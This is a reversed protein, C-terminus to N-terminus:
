RCGASTPSPRSAAQPLPGDRRRRRDDGRGHQRRHGPRRGRGAPPRRRAGHRLRGGQHAPPVAGVRHHQHARRRQRVPQGRRRRVARPGVPAAGAPRGGAPAPRGRHLGRAIRPSTSPPPAAAGASSTSWGPRPSSASSGPWRRPPRTTSASPTPCAPTRTRRCSATPSARVARRRLAAPREAGLACNLGVALPRAHRVSYWFAETVQGSLTRGSADTITGSIMVPWRRDHEEFLTELAYIAAKANLTDFITEVLLVDAGGDVLGPGARPLGRGARRLHRQPRRPRQRRALHIGHPEDARAHGAGLAAPRAHARDDRRVRGPGAVGRRPEDRLRPGADRLRGALHAARQLHQDRAPRRRGRPVHPPGRPHARAPHALAPRQQGAPREGHDAFREGRYDAESLGYAQIMTGM